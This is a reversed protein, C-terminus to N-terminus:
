GDSSEAPQYDKDTYAEEPMMSTLGKKALEEEFKERIFPDPNLLPIRAAHMTGKEAQKFLDGGILILQRMLM